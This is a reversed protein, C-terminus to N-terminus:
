VILIFYTSSQLNCFQRQGVLLFEKAGGFTSKNLLIRGFDWVESFVGQKVEEGEYQFM